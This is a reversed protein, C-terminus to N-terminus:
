KKKRSITIRIGNGAVAIIVAEYVNGKEICKLFDELSDPVVLGAYKGVGILNVMLPHVGVDSSVHVELKTGVLLKSRLEPTINYLDTDESINCNVKKSRGGGAGGSSSSSGSSSGYTGSGGM